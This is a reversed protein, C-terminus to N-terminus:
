TAKSRISIVVFLLFSFASPEFAVYVRASLLFCFGHLLLILSWFCLCLVFMFQLVSVCAQCHQLEGLADGSGTYCLLFLGECGRM